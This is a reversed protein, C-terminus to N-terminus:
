EQDDSDEDQKQALKAWQGQQLQVFLTRHRHLTTRITAEHKEELDLEHTIEAVTKPSRLVAEIRQSLPLEEALGSDAVEIRQVTIAEPLFNFRFGMPRLLVDFNAKDSLLVMELSHRDPEQHKKVRYSTRALNWWFANGYPGRTTKAKTEHAITLSTRGLTRLAGYYPVVFDSLEPKGGCALAASDIIIFDINKEAVVAQLYQIDDPVSQTCLRYYVSPNGAGLGACLLDHRDRTTEKDAEYDLVLVNGPEPDLGNHPYGLSTIIALYMAFVSKGVGGDGYILNAQREVLLPKLRYALGETKPETSLDVVPEGERYKALVMVCMQQLMADWDVTNVRLACKNAFEVQSRTSVLNLRAQHVHSSPLDTKRVTAEATIVHHSDEYIRDVRMSVAQPEWTLHHVGATIDHKPIAM